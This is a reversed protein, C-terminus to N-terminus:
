LTKLIRRSAWTSWPLYMNMMMPFGSATTTPLEHCAQESADGSSHTEGASHSDNSGSHTSAADNSDNENSHSAADSSSNQGFSNFDVVSMHRSSGGSSGDSSGTPEAGGGQQGVSEATAPHHDGSDSYSTLVMHAREEALLRWFGLQCPHRSPRARTRSPLQFLHPSCALNNM